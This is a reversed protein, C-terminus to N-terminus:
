LKKRMTILHRARHKTLGNRSSRIFELSPHEPFKNKEPPAEDDTHFLFVLKGGPRLLLAGLDLLHEHLEVFDYHEKQAFHPQETEEDAPEKKEKIKKTQRVGAKQSRARVGYPPDCVIADFIPRVGLGEETQQLNFQVASIDMAMVEPLPIGYHKFNTFINFKDIKDLGPIGKNKTKGGVAYGKLVRMDLDCGTVFTNFYQLAVAISGTGVFPEYVFDGESLEAQNAM